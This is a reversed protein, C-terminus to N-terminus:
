NACPSPPAETQSLRPTEQDSKRQDSGVAARTMEGWAQAADRREGCWVVGRDGGNTDRIAIARVYTRGLSGDVRIGRHELAFVSKTELAHEIKAMVQQQDDPETALSEFLADITDSGPEPAGEM